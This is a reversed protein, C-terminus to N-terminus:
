GADLGEGMSSNENGFGQQVHVPFPGHNIPLVNSRWVFIESQMRLM